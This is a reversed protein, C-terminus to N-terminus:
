TILYLRSEFGLDKSGSGIMRAVRGCIEVPELGFGHCKDLSLRIYDGWTRTSAENRLGLRIMMRPLSSFSWMNRTFPPSSRRCSWLISCINPIMFSTKWCSGAQLCLFNTRLVYWTMGMVGLNTFQIQIKACLTMDRGCTHDSMIPVLLWCQYRQVDCKWVNNDLQPFSVPRETTLCRRHLKHGTSICTCTHYWQHYQHVVVKWLQVTM